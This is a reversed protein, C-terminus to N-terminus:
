KGRLELIASDRMELWEAKLHIERGLRYASIDRVRTTLQDWLGADDCNVWERIDERYLYHNRDRLIDYSAGPQTVFVLGLPPLEWPECDSDTYTAGGEFWAKWRYTPPVFSM